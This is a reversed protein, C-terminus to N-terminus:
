AKLKKKINFMSVMDDTFEKFWKQRRSDSGVAKYRPDKDIKHKVDDFKSRSTIDPTERLLQM